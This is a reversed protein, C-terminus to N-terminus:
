QLHHAHVLARALRGCTVSARNVSKEAWTFNTEDPNDHDEVNTLLHNAVLLM